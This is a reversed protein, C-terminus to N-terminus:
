TYRLKKRRRTGHWDEELCAEVLSPEMGREDIFYRHLLRARRQLSIGTTSNELGWLWDFFENLALFRSDAGDWLMPVTRVFKNCNIFIDFYRSFRAARRMASFDLDPTALVEYPAQPDFLMGRDSAERRLRTGPLLKLVNIQIAEASLSMLFDLDPGISEFSQEPLGIILDLHLQAASEGSLRKLVTRVRETEGARGIVSRVRADLSQVGVELHLARPEFKSLGAIVGDTLVEPYIEFHYLLGPVWMDRLSHLLAEARESPINFSRDLFKIHRAGREILQAVSGLVEDDAFFRLGDDCSSLCYSCSFPCGRSTEAYIAKNAIDEDTYLHYPLQLEALDLPEAVILSESPLRGALIAHCLERFVVEGEGRVVVNAAPFSAEGNPEHGVEPGGVIVVTEKSLDRLLAVVHRALGVSWIHVSVGVVTPRLALIAEVVEVARFTTEFEMIQARSALPGLNALLSRAAFSPHHYRANFAVLVIDVPSCLDPNPTSM